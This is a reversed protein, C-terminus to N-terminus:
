RAFRRFANFAPKKKGNDFFAGTQFTSRGCGTNRTYKHDRILYNVAVSAGQRKFSRLAQGIWRKHRKVNVGTCLDPPNTEWWFETLWVQHRGETAVTGKKEAKRLVDVLHKVDPTSVDDDNVASVDPGGSTNIPHHAYADFKAPTCNQQPKNQANLCLLDRAFILPRTRRGGPDEGYPATGGTIVRSGGDAAKVGEYFENLLRRYVDSGVLETGNYQPNLWPFINPENWAQYNRVQSGYRMALAQAFDGFAEEDPRWTGPSASAPRNPGEAWNPALSVTLLPDLGAAVADSVAEDLTGWQYAPDMPNTPLLPETPATSRWFVDIRAIKAGANRSKKFWKARTEDKASRYLTDAFGIKLPKASAVPGALALSGALITAALGFRARSV